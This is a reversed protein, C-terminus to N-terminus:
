ISKVIIYTGYHEDEPKWSKYALLIYTCYSLFAVAVINAGRRLNILIGRRITEKIVTTIGIYM